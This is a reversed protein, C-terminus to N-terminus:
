EESVLPHDSWTWWAPGTVHDGQGRGRPALLVAKNRVPTGLVGGERQPIASGQPFAVLGGELQATSAEPVEAPGPVSVVTLVRPGVVNWASGSCSPCVGGEISGPGLAGRCVTGVGLNRKRVPPVQCGSQRSAAMKIKKQDM